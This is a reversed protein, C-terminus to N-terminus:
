RRSTSRVAPGGTAGYRALEADYADLGTLRRLEAFPVLEAAPEGRALSALARQMALTAASLLTLPWAALKFGLEALREPSAAPTAGGEVQNALAPVRAERCFRRMEDESEPAELFVLDAGADAFAAVRWLAEDLGEPGRADTRALVLIGAGEDRAAVAARVRALAEARDVVEKGRV